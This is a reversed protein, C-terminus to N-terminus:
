FSKEVEESVPLYVRFTAGEGPRGEAIIFGNHNQVVKQAISLGVGTGRYEKSSHLRQFVEFIRDADKQDFGIGNDEVQILHYSSANKEGTLKIPIEMGTVVTASIKVEPKVGPKSYKIANTILNQFLQQLQRRYGRVVPLKDIRIVANKEAIAIEIDSLIMEMKHNLDVDEMSAPTISVHSYSLLDDVLLQMRETARELREFMRAEDESLRGGLANRLRDAFFHVKRIPEKLDHSAASAFQELNNNSRKLETVVSELEAQMERVSTFDTFTILVGDEMKSSMIDLWANVGDGQYHTEKRIPLGSEFTTKYQEFLGNERYTPFWRSAIDGELASPSQGAYAAFTKNTIGFRFDQLQGNTDYVPHLLSMAAQSTDIFRRLSEAFQEVKVQAKRVETVDTFVHILHDDDMKSVSIELWRGTLEIYYHTVFPEGTRLTHVIKDFYDSQLISPDLELATKGLYVARPIGTFAVAAENALITRGDIINGQKDRIVQSVSIGSSSHFVIKDLLAKERLLEDIAHKSLNNDKSSRVVETVNRDIFLVGDAHRSAIASHHRDKAANYYDFLQTYGTTFVELLKRSIFNRSDQDTEPLRSVFSGTLQEKSVGSIRSAEENCYGIKFDVPTSSVDGFPFVPIYLIVSEPQSDLLNIAFNENALVPRTM